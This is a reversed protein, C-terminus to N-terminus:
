RPRFQRRQVGIGQAGYAKDSAWIGYGDTPEPADTRVFPLRRSIDARASGTLAEWRSSFWLYSYWRAGTVNARAFINGADDSRELTGDYRARYELTVVRTDALTKFGYEVHDVLGHELLIELEEGYKQIELEAPRGYFVTLLRLDAMVRSGVEKTGTRSFTYTYSM